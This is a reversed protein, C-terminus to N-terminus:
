DNKMGRVGLAERESKCMTVIKGLGSLDIIRKVTNDAGFVKIKGGLACVRKYRGIIMGIGSSDMFGVEGLDFIMDKVGLEDYEIDIQRRLIKASEADIEGQLKVVLANNEKRFNVNM